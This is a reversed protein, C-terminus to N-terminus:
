LAALALVVAVDNMPDLYDEVCRKTIEEMPLGERLLRRFDDRIDLANDNDFIGYGWVRM